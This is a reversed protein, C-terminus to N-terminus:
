VMRPMAPAEVTRRLEPQGHDHRRRGLEDIRNWGLYREALADVWQADTQSRIAAAVNELTVSGFSSTDTLCKSCAGVARHRHGNSEPHLFVYLGSTWKPENLLTAGALMHDGWIQELPKRQVDAVRAPEFCGTAATLEAYRPKPEAAM